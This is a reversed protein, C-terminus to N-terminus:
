LEYHLVPLCRDSGDPASVSSRIKGSLTAGVARYFGLAFPDSLVKLRLLGEARAKGVAHDWLARGIGRGIV